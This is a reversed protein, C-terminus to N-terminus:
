VPMFIIARPDCQSSFRIPGVAFPTVRPYRLVQYLVTGADRDALQTLDAICLIMDRTLLRAESAQMHLRFARLAMCERGVVRADDGAILFVATDTCELLAQLADGCLM